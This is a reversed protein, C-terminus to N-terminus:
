IIRSLKEELKKLDKNALELAAMELEIDEKNSGPDKSHNSLEKEISDIIVRLDRRKQADEYTWGPSRLRSPAELRTEFDSM